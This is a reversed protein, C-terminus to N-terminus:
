AEGRGVGDSFFGTVGEIVREVFEQRMNSHLPLTLVEKVVRETVSMDGRRSSAFYTHKHVPVFHIGVEV